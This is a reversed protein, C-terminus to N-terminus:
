HKKLTILSEWHYTAPFFDFLHVEGIDYGELKKIDRILTTPDCSLYIIDDPQWLQVFQDINKLGSRPPDLILIDAKLKLKQLKQVAKKHYLNVGYYKQWESLPKRDTAADIVSIKQHTVHQTLNGSGGFLDVISLETKGDIAQTLLRDIEQLCLQNQKENVQTFGGQAYQQNITLQLEGEKQYLEIHGREPHSALQEWIISDQYLGQLRKQIAEIPLQCHPIALIKQESSLLGLEKTRQNYHLQVRNRYSTREVAPHVQLTFEQPIFRLMRQFQEKKYSIEQQYNTHLYHCGSCKEYHPCSPAIRLPSSQELKKLECFNVGKKQSHISAIGCEGPLTKPIFYVEQDSKSVGQAFRDLHEICFSHTHLQSKKDTM